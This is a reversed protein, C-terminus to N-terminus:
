WGRWADAAPSGPTPETSIRRRAPGAGHSCGGTSPDPSNRPAPQPSYGPPAIGGPLEGLPEDPWNVRRSRPGTLTGGTVLRGTPTGGVTGDWGSSSRTGPLDTGGPSPPRAWDNVARSSSVRTHIGRTSWPPLAEPEGTTGPWRGVSWSAHRWERGGPWILCAPGSNRKPAAPKSSPPPGDPSIRTWRCTSGLRSIGRRWHGPEQVPTTPWCVCRTWMSDLTGQRTPWDSTRAGPCTPHPRYRRLRGPRGPGPMVPWYGTTSTLGTERIALM